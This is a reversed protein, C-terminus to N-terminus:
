VEDYLDNICAVREVESTLIQFGIDQINLAGFAFLPGPTAKPTIKKEDVFGIKQSRFLPLCRIKSPRIM